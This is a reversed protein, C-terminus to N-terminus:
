EEEWDGVLSEVQAVTRKVWLRAAGLPVVSRLATSMVLDGDVARAHILFDGIDVIQERCGRECGLLSAVRDSAEFGEALIEALQQKRRARMQGVSALVHSGQMLVVAEAGLEDALGNMVDVLAAERELPRDPEPGNPGSDGPRASPPDPTAVPESGQEDDAEDQVRRADADAEGASEPDVADSVSDDGGGSTDSSMAEDGHSSDDPQETEQEAVRDAADLDDAPTEVGGAAGDDVAETEESPEQTEEMTGTDTQADVPGLRGDDPTHPKEGGSDSDDEKGSPRRDAGNGKRGRTGTVGDFGGTPPGFVERLLLEDESLGQDPAAVASAVERDAEDEVAEVPSGSTRSPVVEVRESPPVDGVSDADGMVEADQQVSEDDAKDAEPHGTLQGTDGDTEEPAPAEAEAAPEAHGPEAGLSDMEQGRERGADGDAAGWEDARDAIGEDGQVVPAAPSAARKEARPAEASGDRESGVAKESMDEGLDAPELESRGPESGEDEVSQAGGDDPDAAFLSSPDFEKSGPEPPEAVADRREEEQDARPPTGGEAPEPGGDDGGVRQLAEEIEKPLQDINIPKPIYGDCGAGLAREKDGKMVNATVALVPVDDLHAYESFRRALDYGDMAPLSIDLLIVDPYSETAAKLGSPGDIAEKVSYGSAELTRRVLLRNEPNDEIYLIQREAM